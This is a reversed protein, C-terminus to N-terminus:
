SHYHLFEGERRCRDLGRERHLYTRAIPSGMLLKIYSWKKKKKKKSESFGEGDIYDVGIAQLIQAEAFHGVRVKAMIPISVAEMIDKILQPDSKTNPLPTSLFPYLSDITLTRQDEPLEPPGNSVMRAVGGEKRILSPIKELVMIAAAGAEEALIAQDRSMVDM